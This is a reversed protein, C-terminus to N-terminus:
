KELSLMFVLMLVLVLKTIETVVGFISRQRSLCKDTNTKAYKGFTEKSESVRERDSSDVIYIVAHCEAYYQLDCM